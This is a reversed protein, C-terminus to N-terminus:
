THTNKPCAVSEEPYTNCKFKSRLGLCYKQLKVLIKNLAVLPVFAFFCILDILRGDGEHNQLFRVPNIFKKRRLNGFWIHALYSIWNVRNKYNIFYWAIASTYGDTVESNENAISFSGAHSRFFVLAKDLWKIKPYNEATLLMIMVDPGAGNSEYPRKISTPFDIYLNKLLDATRLMVACPSVPAKGNIMLNVYKASDILANSACSYALKAQEKSPGINAACFVFGVETSHLSELMREVCDSELQDDSFLIKSFEGKAEQACRIWNRVPGINENNRFIKIRNDRAAYAECISWTADTSANDVVVIEIDIFTQDLASQICEGIFNQRNYVPILVSVKPIIM